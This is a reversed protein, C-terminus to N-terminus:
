PQVQFCSLFALYGMNKSPLTTSLPFDQKAHLPFDQKAAPFEEPIDLNAVCSIIYDYYHLIVEQLAMM